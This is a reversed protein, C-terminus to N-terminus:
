PSTKRKPNRKVNCVRKLRSGGIRVSTRMLWKLPLVINGGM